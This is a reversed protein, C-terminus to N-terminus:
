WAAAGPGLSHLGRRDRADPSRGRAARCSRSPQGGDAQRDLVFTFYRGRPWYRVELAATAGIRLVRLLRISLVQARPHYATCLEHAHRETASRFTPSLLPSCVGGSDRAVGSRFADLWAM